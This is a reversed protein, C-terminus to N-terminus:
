EFSNGGKKLTKIVPAVEPFDWNINVKNMFAIVRPTKIPYYSVDQWITWSLDELNSQLCKECLLLKIILVSEIMLDYCKIIDLYNENYNIVRNVLDDLYYSEIDELNLYNEEIIQNNLEEYSANLKDIDECVFGLNCASNIVKLYLEALKVNRFSVAQNFFSIYYKLDFSEVNKFCNILHSYSNNGQILDLDYLLLALEYYETQGSKFLFSYLNSKAKEKEDIDLLEKLEEPKLIFITKSSENNKVLQNIRKLVLHFYNYSRFQESEYYNLYLEYAAKYDHNDIADYFTRYKEEKIVKFENGNLLDLINQCIIRSKQEKYSLLHQRERKNALDIFKQYEQNQILEYAEKNYEKEKAGIKNLLLNTLRNYLFNKNKSKTILNSQELAPLFKLCMSKKLMEEKISDNMDKESLFLDINNEKAYNFEEPLTTLFSLLYFYFNLETKNYYKTNKNMTKLFEFAKDYDEQMISVILLEGNPNLYSPNFELCKYCIKIGKEKKGIKFCHMAYKFFGEIDLLKFIDDNRKIVKNKILFDIDKDFFIERITSYTVIDNEIFLDFLVYFKM